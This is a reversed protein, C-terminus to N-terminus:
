GGDSRIDDVESPENPVSIKDPGNSILVPRGGLGGAVDYRMVTKFGDYIYLRKEEEDDEDFKFADKDLKLLIPAITKKIQNNTIQKKTIWQNMNWNDRDEINGTLCCILAELGDVTQDDKEVVNQPPYDGTLERFLDIAQMVVAQTARTEKASAEGYVYNGAGIFMAVVIGLIALTVLMEILTFGAGAPSIRGAQHRRNRTPKLVM